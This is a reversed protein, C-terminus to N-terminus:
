ILGIVQEQSLVGYFGKELHEDLASPMVVLAFM